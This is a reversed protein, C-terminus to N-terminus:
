WRRRCRCWGRSLQVKGSQAMVYPTDDAGLELMTVRLANRAERESIEGAGGATAQKTARLCHLRTPFLEFAASAIACAHRVRSVELPSKVLRLARMIGRGDAM